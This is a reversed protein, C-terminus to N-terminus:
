RRLGLADVAGAQLLLASITGPPGTVASTSSNRMTLRCIRSAARSARMPPMGAGRLAHQDARRQRALALGEARGVERERDGALLVAFDQEDIGVEGLGRDERQEAQRAPPCPRPRISASALGSIRPRPSRARAGVNGPEVHQRRAVAGGRVAFVQGAAAGGFHELPEREARGVADHDEIRRRRQGSRGGGLQGLVDALRQHDAAGVLGPLRASSSASDSSEAQGSM